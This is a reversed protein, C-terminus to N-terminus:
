FGLSSDIIIDGTLEEIGYLYDLCNMSSFSILFLYIWAADNNLMLNKFYSAYLWHIMRIFATSEDIWWYNHTYLEPDVSDVSENSLLVFCDWKNVFTYVERQCPFRIYIIAKFIAPMNVM